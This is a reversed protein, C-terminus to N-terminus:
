AVAAAPVLVRGRAAGRRVKPASAPDLARSGHELQFVPWEVDPRLEEPPVVFGSNIVILEVLKVDMRSGKSMAKRLYNLSTGCKSAFAEQAGDQSSLARLYERLKPYDTKM